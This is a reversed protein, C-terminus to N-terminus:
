GFKVKVERKSRFGILNEYGKTWLFPWLFGSLCKQPRRHDPCGNKRVQGSCFPMKM